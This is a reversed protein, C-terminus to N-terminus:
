QKAEPKQPIIMSKEGPVKWYGQQVLYDEDGEVNTVEWTGDDFLRVTFHEYKFM